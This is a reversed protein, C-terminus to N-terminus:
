RQGVDAPPLEAVRKRLLAVLADRDTPLMDRPVEPEIIPRSRGLLRDFLKRMAALDGNKAQEVLRAM